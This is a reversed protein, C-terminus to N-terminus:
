VWVQVLLVTGLGAALAFVVVGTPGALNTALHTSVVALVVAFALPGAAQEADAPRVPPM